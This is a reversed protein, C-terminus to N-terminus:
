GQGQEKLAQLEEWFATAAADTPFARKPIIHVVFAGAQAFIYHNSVFLLLVGQWKALHEGRDSFERIGEETLEIRHTGIVGGKLAFAFASALNLLYIGLYIALCIGAILLSLAAIEFLSAPPARYLVVVLIGLALFLIATRMFLSRAFVQWLGRALDWPTLEFEIERSAMASHGGM